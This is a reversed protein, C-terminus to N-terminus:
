EENAPAGRRRRHDLWLALLCGAAGGAPLLLGTAVLPATPPGTGTGSVVGHSLVDQVVLAALLGGVLGLLGVGVQRM